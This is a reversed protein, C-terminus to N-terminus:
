QKYESLEKAGHELEAPKEFESHEVVVFIQEICVFMKLWQRSLAPLLV